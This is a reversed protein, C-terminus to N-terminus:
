PPAPDGLMTDSRQVSRYPIRLIDSSLDGRYRLRFIESFFHISARRQVGSWTVPLLCLSGLVCRGSDDTTPLLFLSAERENRSLVPCAKVPCCRCQAILRHRHIM